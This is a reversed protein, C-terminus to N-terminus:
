QQAQMRALVHRGFVEVGEIYSHLSGASVFDLLLEGQFTESDFNRVFSVRERETMANSDSTDIALLSRDVVVCPFALFAVPKKFNQIVKRHDKIRHATAKAIPLILSDYIGDHNALWDSGKRVIKTFHNAKRDEALYYHDKLGFFESPWLMAVRNPGVSKEYRKKNFMYQEFCLSGQERKNKVRELFVFPSRSAKCEVLFEVFVQIDSEQGDHLARIARVDIERSKKSEPDEFPWATEVHFGHSEFVSAVQHELLFGSDGIAKRIQEETPQSRDM